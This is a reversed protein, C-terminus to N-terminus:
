PKYVFGRRRTVTFYIIIGYQVFSLYPIDVIFSLFWLLIYAAIWPSVLPKVLKVFLM